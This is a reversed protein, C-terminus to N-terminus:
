FHSVPKLGSAGRGWPTPYTSPPRRIHMLCSCIHPGLFPQANTLEAEASALEANAKKDIPVVMLEARKKAVKLQAELVALEANALPKKDVPVVMAEARKKAVEFAAEAVTLKTEAEKFEAEKQFSPAYIWAIRAEALTLKAGALAGTAKALAFEATNPSKTQVDAQANSLEAKAAAEEELATQLQRKRKSSWGM